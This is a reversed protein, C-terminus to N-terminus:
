GVKAPATDPAAPPLKEITKLTKIRILCKDGKKQESGIAVVKVNQNLYESLKGAPLSAGKKDAAKAVPLRM